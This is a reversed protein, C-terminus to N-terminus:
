AFNLSPSSSTLSLLDGSARGRLISIEQAGFRKGDVASRNVNKWGWGGTPSNMEPTGPCPPKVAHMGDALM